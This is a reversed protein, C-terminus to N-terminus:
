LCSDDTRLTGANRNHDALLERQPVDTAAVYRQRVACGRREFGQPVSGRYGAPGVVSLRKVGIGFVRLSAVDLTVADVADPVAGFLM